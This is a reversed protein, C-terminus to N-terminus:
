KIAGPLKKLRSTVHITIIVRGGARAHVLGHEDQGRQRHSWVVGAAHYLHFNRIARWKQGISGKVRIVKDGHIAAGHGDVAVIVPPAIASVVALTTRRWGALLSGGSGRTAAVGEGNKGRFGHGLLAIRCNHRGHVRCCRLVLHKRVVYRRE